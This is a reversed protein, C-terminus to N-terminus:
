ASAQRESPRFARGRKVGLTMKTSPHPHSSAPSLPGESRARLRREAGRNWRVWGERIGADLVAEGRRRDLRGPACVRGAGRLGSNGASQLASEAPGAGDGGSSIVPQATEKLKIAM